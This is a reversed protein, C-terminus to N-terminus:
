ETIWQKLCKLYYIQAKEETMFKQCVNNNLSLPSKVESM